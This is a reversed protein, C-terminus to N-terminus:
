APPANYKNMCFEIGRTMWDTVAEASRRVIEDKQPLESESFKGLVFDVNSWGPPVPGIGVRLRPIEQTGLQQILDNLGKQGGASGQSRFRLWGLELQFDDCIVLLDRHSIRFFDLATRVSRGSLNM